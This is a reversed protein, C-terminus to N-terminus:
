SKDRMDIKVMDLMEWILIADDITVVKPSPVELDLSRIVFEVELELSERRDINRFVEEGMTFSTNQRVVQEHKMPTSTNESYKVESIQQLLNTEDIMLSCEDSNLIISRMKKPANWSVHIDAVFGTSWKALLTASTISRSVRFPSTDLFSISEPLQKMLGLLMSFDHCALDEIVSVDSQIIGLSCRYSTYSRLSHFESWSEMFRYNDSYRYTYDCFVKVRYLSALRSIEKALELSTTVPKPLVINVGSKILEIAIDFHTAPRTAIFVLDVEFQSTLDSIDTFVPVQFLEGAQKARTPDTEVIGVFECLPSSHINRALNPGWYGFGILAVKRRMVDDYRYSDNL